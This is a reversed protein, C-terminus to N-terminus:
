PLWPISELVTTRDRALQAAMFRRYNLVLSLQFRGRSPPELLFTYHPRRSSWVVFSPVRSLKWHVLKAQIHEGIRVLHRM